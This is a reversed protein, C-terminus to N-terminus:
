NLLGLREYVFSLENKFMNAFNIFYYIMDM